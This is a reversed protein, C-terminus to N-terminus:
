YFALLRNVEKQLLEQALEHAQQIRGSLLPGVNYEAKELLRKIVDERSKVVKISTDIDVYQMTQQIVNPTLNSEHLGGNEDICVRLLNDPIYRQGDSDEKNAVEIRFFCDLLLTGAKVGRYKVALLATNGLESSQVMDMMTRVFPHEWTKM